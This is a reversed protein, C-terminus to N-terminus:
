FKLKELQCKLMDAVRQQEEESPGYVVVESKHYNIKM